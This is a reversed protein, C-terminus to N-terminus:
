SPKKIELDLEKLVKYMRIFIDQLMEAQSEMMEPMQKGNYSVKSRWMAYWESVENIANEHKQILDMVSAYFISLTAEQDKLLKLQKIAGDKTGPSSWKYNPDRIIKNAKEIRNQLPVLIAQKFVEAENACQWNDCYSIKDKSDTM